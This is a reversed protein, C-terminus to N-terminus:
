IMVFKKQFTVATLKIPALRRGLVEWPLPCPMLRFLFVEYRWRLFDDSLPVCLLQFAYFIMQGIQEYVLFLLSVGLYLRFNRARLLCM